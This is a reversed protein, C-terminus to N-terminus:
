IATSLLKDIEEIKKLLEIGKKSLRYLKIPRGLENLGPSEEVLGLKVLKKLYKYFMSESFSVMEALRSAQINGSKKLLRLIELYKPNMIEESSLM